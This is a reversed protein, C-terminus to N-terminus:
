KFKGIEKLVVDRLEVLFTEDFIREVKSEIYLAVLRKVNKDHLAHYECQRILKGANMRCGCPESM